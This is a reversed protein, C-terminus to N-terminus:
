NSSCKVKRFGKYIQLDVLPRTCIGFNLDLHILISSDSCIHNKWSFTHQMKKMKQLLMKLFCRLTIIVFSSDPCTVHEDLLLSSYM